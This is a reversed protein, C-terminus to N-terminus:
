IRDDIGQLLQARRTLFQAEFHRLQLALYCWRVAYIFEITCVMWSFRSCNPPRIAVSSRASLPRCHVCLNILKLHLRTEVGVLHQVLKLRRMLDDVRGALNALVDDAIALDVPQKLHM